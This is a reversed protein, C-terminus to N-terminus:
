PESRAFAAFDDVEPGVATADGLLKYFFWRGDRPVIAAVLRRGGNSLNVMVTGTGGPDLPVVERPLEEGSIPPLGIQERWRNVNALTGGTDTPFSSVSVEARAGRRAPVEFRALQMRGAPLETWGGPVKWRAAPPAEDGVGRGEAFSVPGPAREGPVRYSAIGPGGCGELGAALLLAGVLAPRRGVVRPDGRVSVATGM